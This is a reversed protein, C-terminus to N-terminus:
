ICVKKAVREYIIARGDDAIVEFRGGFDSPKRMEKPDDSYATLLPWFYGTGRADQAFLYEGSRHRRLSMAPHVVLRYGFKDPEAIYMFKRRQPEEIRIGEPSVELAPAGQAVYCGVVTNKSIPSPRLFIMGLGALLILPGVIISWGLLKDRLSAASFFATSNEVM